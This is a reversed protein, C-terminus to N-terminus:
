LKTIKRAMRKNGGKIYVFVGRVARNEFGEM